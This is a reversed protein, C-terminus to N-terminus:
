RKSSTAALIGKLCWFVVDVVLERLFFFLDGDGNPLFVGLKLFSGLAEVEPGFNFCSV